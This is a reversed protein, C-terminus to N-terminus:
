MELDFPGREADPLLLPPCLNAVGGASCALEKRWVRLSLILPKGWANLFCFLPAGRTGVTHLLPVGHASGGAPVLGGGLAGELGGARPNRNGIIKSM